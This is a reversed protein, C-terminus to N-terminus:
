NLFINQYLTVADLICLVVNLPTIDKSNPLRPRGEMVSVTQLQPDDAFEALNNLSLALHEM